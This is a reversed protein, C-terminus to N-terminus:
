PYQTFATNLKQDPRPKQVWKAPEPTFPQVYTRWEFPNSLNQPGQEVPEVRGNKRDRAKRKAAYKLVNDCDKCSASLTGNSRTYYRSLPTDQACKSCVKSVGSPSPARPTTDLMHETGTNTRRYIHATGRKATEDEKREVYGLKSLAKLTIRTPHNGTNRQKALADVTIWDTLMSLTHKRRNM